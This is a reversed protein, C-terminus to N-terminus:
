EDKEEEATKRINQLLATLTGLGGRARIVDEMNPASMLTRQEPEQLKVIEKNLARWIM